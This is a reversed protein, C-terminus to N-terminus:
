EGIAALKSLDDAPGVDIRVLDRADESALGSNTASFILGVLLIAALLHFVHRQLSTDGKTESIFFRM